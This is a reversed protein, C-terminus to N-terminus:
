VTSQHHSVPPLGAVILVDALLAVVFITSRNSRTGEVFAIVANTDTFPPDLQVWIDPLTTFANVLGRNPMLTPSLAEPLVKGLASKAYTSIPVVDVGNSGESNNLALLRLKKPKM